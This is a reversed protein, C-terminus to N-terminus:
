LVTFSFLIPIKSEIFFAASTADFAVSTADFTVSTAAFAFFIMDLAAGFVANALAADGLAAGSLAAAALAAANTPDIDACFVLAGSLVAAAAL